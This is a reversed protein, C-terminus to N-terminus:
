RSERFRKTASFDGVNTQHRRLANMIAEYIFPNNTPSKQNDETWDGYKLKLFAIDDMRGLELLIEHMLQHGNLLDDQVVLSGNAYALAHLKPTLKPLVGKQDAARAIPNWLVFESDYTMGVLQQLHNTEQPWPGKADYRVDGLGEKGLAHEAWRAQGELYWRNKFYTSGYQILHFFEHAPTANIAPEVSTAITMVLATDANNGEPIPRAKQANEFAVGNKGFEDRSRLRVEICTVKSYRECGIPDQFNLENCFLERAAWIQKAVDEVQDPVGNNDTDVTPVASPGVDTYFVRIAGLVHHRPLKSKTQGICPPVSFVSLLALFLSIRVATTRHSIIM